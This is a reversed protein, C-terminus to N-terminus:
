LARRYRVEDYVFGNSDTDRKEAGDARFGAAEYFRRARRNDRLVWLTVVTAGRTRLDGVAKQLLARGIGRGALEAAGLYIAFVEMWGAQADDDRCPGTFCFGAIRGEVEAVWVRREDAMGELWARWRAQMAEDTVGALRDDDFIDAYAWRWGGVHVLGIAEADGVTAPRVCAALRATDLWAPLPEGDLM